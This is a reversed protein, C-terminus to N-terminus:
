ETATESITFGTGLAADAKKMFLFATKVENDGVKVFTDYCTGSITGKVVSTKLSSGDIKSTLQVKPLVFKGDQFAIEVTAYKKVYSAPAAVADTGVKEYGLAKELIDDSVDASTMEITFKGSTVVEVIPSDSTECDITDTTPDEQTFTTSDAVIADLDLATTEASPPTLVGESDTWVNLTIKKAKSLVRRTAM